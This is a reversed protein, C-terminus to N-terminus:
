KTAPAETAAVYPSARPINATQQYDRVRYPLMKAPFLGSEEGSAEATDAPSEGAHDGRVFCRGDSDGFPASM